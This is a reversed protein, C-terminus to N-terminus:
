VDGEGGSELWRRITSAALGVDEGELARLAGELVQREKLYRAVAGVKEEVDVLTAEARKVLDYAGPRSTGLEQAVETISLDLAFHLEFARKQRTTLLDGYFDFLLMLRGLDRL